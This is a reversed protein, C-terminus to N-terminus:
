ILKAVVKGVTRESRISILEENINHFDVIKLKSVRLEGQELLKSVAIGAKVLTQKGYNGYRHGSGLSLQHFSLGKSFSNLYDKPSVTKVLEVMQGEYRLTSAALTDYDKGVCDLAVDVGEQDTIQMIKELINSDKYDIAHTAGLKIVYEHNKSSCTTIITKVGFYKAIQIAFSGVGGSGGLIVISNHKEICLKDVLARYATWGACPVAAALESPVNPHPIMVRSDQIAYEAFGGSSRFMDGHYLVKDGVKWHKVATGISVVEGAVDLGGIFIDDVNDVDSFWHNVKADVPNLGVSHVKILVDFENKVKPVPLDLELFKDTTAQYTIAKM